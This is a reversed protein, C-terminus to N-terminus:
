GTKPGVVKTLKKFYKKFGGPSKVPMADLTSVQLAPQINPMRFTPTEPHPAEIKPNMEKNEKPKKGYAEKYNATLNKYGNYTSM